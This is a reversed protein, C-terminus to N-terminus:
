RFAADNRRLEQPRGDAAQHVVVRMDSVDIELPNCRCATAYRHYMTDGPQMPTLHLIDTNPQTYRRWGPIPSKDTLSEEDLDLIESMKDILFQICRDCTVADYDRTMENPLITLPVFHPVSSMTTGFHIM